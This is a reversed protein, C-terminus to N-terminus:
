RFYRKAIKWHNRVLRFNELDWYEQFFTLILDIVFMCEVATNWHSLAPYDGTDIDFALRDIM